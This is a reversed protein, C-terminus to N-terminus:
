ESIILKSNMTAKDSKLILQYLGPSLVGVDIKQQNVVKQTFVVKGHIDIANLELNNLDEGLINLEIMQKAPNPLVSFDYKKTIDTSISKLTTNSVVAFSNAKFDGTANNANQEYEVSLEFYENTNPRFLRFRIQEEEIFGDPNQTTFDDGYLTVVQNNDNNEVELVGNISGSSNFAGIIDGMQIETLASQLFVTLQKQPSFNVIGWPTPESTARSVKFTKESSECAPFSLNVSNSIKISYAKGPELQGLTFISFEPWFVKNGILEMIIIVNDVQDGLLSEIDVPCDSLVPIFYWGPQPLSLEGSTNSSGNIQLACNETLKLVYGSENDWNGLSNFNGEPWYVSTLNQIITLNNAISEFMVEVDPNLPNLFLSMSNWGSSFEFNQQFEVAEIGTLKSLGLTAFYGQNPATLDYTAFAPYESLESFDFVKWKILEGEAFGDKEPTTIDDGYLLVAASGFFNIKGSGGCVLAGNDDEYFAGLWDGFVMEEGFINLNASVPVQVTHLFGSPTVNWPSVNVAASVQNSPVSEGENYVATVYYSYTGLPLNLDDYNTVTVNGILIGGRYVNYGTLAKGIPANWSLHVDDNTVSSGLNTPPLIEQGTQVIKAIFFDQQSVSNLLISGFNVSEYFYGGVFVENNQNVSICESIDTSPGGAQMTWLANGNPDYKVAFADTNGVVNLTFSGFHATEEFNGSIYCNGQNDVALGRLYDMGMGGGSRGWVPNGAPDIKVIFCEFYGENTNQLIDSGFQFTPAYYIGGIFINGANDTELGSFAQEGGSTSGYSNAFLYNGDIDLKLLYFHSSYAPSELTYPGFLAPGYFTGTCFVKGNDDIKIGKGEDGYEGGGSKAWVLEGLNNYLAIFADLDWSNYNTITQTSGSFQMFTYYSGTLAVYGNSNVDIRYGYAFDGGGHQFWEINGTQSIKTVFMDRFGFSSYTTGNITIQNQFYGTVYISGDAGLAISNGYDMTTGGFRIAWLPVGSNNFKAVFVDYVGASTLTTSGITVQNQFYGTSYVNGSNDTAIGNANNYDNGGTNYAWEWTQGKIQAKSELPVSSIGIFVAIMLIMKLKLISLMGVSLAQKKLFTLQKKM